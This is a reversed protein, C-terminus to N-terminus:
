PRLYPRQAFPSFPWPIAVLIILLAVAFWVLMTGFRERDTDRRKALASGFTTVLVAAVMLLMHWLGFFAIEPEGIAERWHSWFYATLPRQVYLVIGLALQVHSLTATWHRWANDAKTFPAHGLYGRAARWIAMCLAGLVLWRTLSHLLLWTSFM